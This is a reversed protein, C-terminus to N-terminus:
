GKEVVKSNVNILSITGSGTTCPLKSNELLASIGMVKVKDSVNSWSTYCPCCPTPTGNNQATLKRCIGFIGIPRATELLIKGDNSKVKEHCNLKLQMDSQNCKCSANNWVLKM